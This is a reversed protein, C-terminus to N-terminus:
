VSADTMLNPRRTLERVDAVSAIGGMKKMQV